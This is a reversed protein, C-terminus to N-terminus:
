ASSRTLLARPRRWAAELREVLLVPLRGVHRALAEVELRHALQQRLEPALQDDVLLALPTRGSSWSSPSRFSTFGHLAAAPRDGHGDRARRAARTRRCRQALGLLRDERLEAAGDAPEDAGRAQVELEREDLDHVAEVLAPQLVVAVGVLDRGLVLLVDPDVGVGAPPDGVRQAEVLRHVVLAAALAAEVVDDVALGAVGHGREVQDLDDAGAVAVELDGLLELSDARGLRHGLDLGPALLDGRLDQLLGGLDRGCNPM